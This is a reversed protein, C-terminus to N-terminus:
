RVTNTVAFGATHGLQTGIHNLVDLTTTTPTANMPPIDTSAIWNSVANRSAATNLVRDLRSDPIIRVGVNTSAASAIVGNTPMICLVWERGLSRGDRVSYIRCYKSLEPVWHKSRPHFNTAVGNGDWRIPAEQESIRSLLYTQGSASFACIIFLLMWRFNNM